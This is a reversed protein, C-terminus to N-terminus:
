YILDVSKKRVRTNTDTTRLVVPLLLGPLSGLVVESRLASAFFVGAVEVALLYITMNNEVLGAKILVMCDQLFLDELVDKKDFRKSGFVDGVAKLAIEREQWEKAGGKESITAKLEALKAKVGDAKSPSSMSITEPVEARDTEDGEEEQERIPDVKEINARGQHARSEAASLNKEVEVNKLKALIASRHKDELDALEEETVCGSLKQVDLLIKGAANRVDQNPHQVAPVVAKLVDKVSLPGRTRSAIGFSNIFKYLLALQALLGKYSGLSAETEIKEGPGEARGEEALKKAALKQANARNHAQIRQLIFSSTLAEGIEPNFSLDLLSEHIKNTVRTNGEESKQLLKPVINKEVISNRLVDTQGSKEVKQSSIMLNLLQLSVSFVKIVKERSTLSM